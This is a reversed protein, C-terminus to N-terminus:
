HTFTLARPVAVSLIHLSRSKQIAKKLSVTGTLLSLQSVVGERVLWYYCLSCTLSRKNNGLFPTIETLSIGHMTKGVLFLVSVSFGPTTCLGVLDRHDSDYLLISINIIFIINCM